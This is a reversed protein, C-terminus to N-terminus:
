RGNARKKLFSARARPAQGKRVVRMQSPGTLHRLAVKFVNITLTVSTHLCNLSSQREIENESPNLNTLKVSKSKRLSALISHSVKDGLREKYALESARTTSTQSKPFQRKARGSGRQRNMISERQQIHRGNPHNAPLDLGYHKKGAKPFSDSKNLGERVFLEIGQTRRMGTLAVEAKASKFAGKISEGFGLARYFAGAFAVGEKDGIGKSAGVSYDIVESLSRAQTSTFCANLVVLRVHSKYLAFMQVLGDQDVQKGRGPKGSLIIKQKKSGHASFHVVHPKHTMLLRQIDIPRTAAHRHLEFKDRYPGEQLREFIERGEEDVLIRGTTWPNASLFLIRTKETM